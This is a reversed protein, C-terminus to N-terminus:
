KEDELIGCKSFYSIYEGAVTEAAYHKVAFVRAKISMEDYRQGGDMLNNISISMDEITNPSAGIKEREITGDPDFFSIVPTGRIWSQLFSNPFGETDSTNVFLKCRQYYGNVMHYPVFGKYDLNDVESADKTIKEFLEESGACVGGIMVINLHPNMKALVVLLDPRKFDRINNVWLIDIDRDIKTNEPTEVAMNIIPADIGYNDNLLVRQQESQAVVLHAKRLGYQYIIKDRKYTIIEQDPICDTDHAIRFVLKRNYIRCFLAVIGTQAGACSQYYIQANAKKLAAWLSTARPYIFRIIPLGASKSCTKWITINKIVNGDPQGHDLVIMSVQYGHKTFAKAILTQQVSEGGIYSNGYEPDIVPYNDSGIFCISKTTFPHM